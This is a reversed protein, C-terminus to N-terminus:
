TPLCRRHNLQQNAYQAFEQHRLYRNTGPTTDRNAIVQCLVSADTNPETLRAFWYYAEATYYGPRLRFQHNAEALAIAQALLKQVADSEDGQSSDHRVIRAGAETTTLLFCHWSQLFVTEDTLDQEGSCARKQELYRRGTEAQLVAEDLLADEYSFSVLLLSSLAYRAEFNTRDLRIAERYSNLAGEPNDNQEQSYLSDSFEWRSVIPTALRGIFTLPFPSFHRM